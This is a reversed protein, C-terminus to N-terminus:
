KYREEIFEMYKVIESGRIEQKARQNHGFLFTISGCLSSTVFIFWAIIIPMPTSVNNGMAPINLTTATLLASGAIGLSVSSFLYFINVDEKINKIQIKLRDWEDISIPYAQKEKASMVALDHSVTVNVRDTM